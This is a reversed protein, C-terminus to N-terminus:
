RHALRARTAERRAAFEAEVEDGDVLGGARATEMSKGVKERLWADYLPDADGTEVLHAMFSRLLEAGDDPGALEEFRKILEADATFSYNSITM